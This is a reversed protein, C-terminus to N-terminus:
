PATNYSRSLAQIAAQRAEEDLDAVLRDGLADAQVLADTGAKTLTVVSRRRDAESRQRAVLGRRELEDIVPVIQAPLLGCLGALEQQSPPADESLVALVIYQRGSLGIAALPDEARAAIENGLKVLLLASRSLTGRPLM